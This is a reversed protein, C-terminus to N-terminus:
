WGPYAPLTRPPIPSRITESGEAPVDPEISRGWDQCRHMTEGLDAGFTITYGTDTFLDETPASWQNASVPMDQLAPYPDTRDIPPWRPELELQPHEASDVIRTFQVYSERGSLTTIRYEGDDWRIGLHSPQTCVTADFGTETETVQLIHARATGALAHYPRADIRSAYEYSLVDAFGPYTVDLGGYHAITKAEEAARILRGREDFLDIEPEASWVYTANLVQTPPQYERPITPEPETTPQEQTDQSCSSFVLISM